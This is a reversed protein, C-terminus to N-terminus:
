YGRPYMGSAAPAFLLHVGEKELLAKDADINRPYIEYDEGAGFQIPNVFISVVIVDCLSKAAKVLALHGEHLAGMTPVLGISKGMKKYNLCINQMEEINSFVQM